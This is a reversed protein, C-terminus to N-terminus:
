GPPPLFFSPDGGSRLHPFHHEDVQMLPRVPWDTEEELQRFAGRAEGVQPASMGLVMCEDVVHATEGTLYCSSPTVKSPDKQAHKPLRLSQRPVSDILQISDIIQIPKQPPTLKKDQVLM